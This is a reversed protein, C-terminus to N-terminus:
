ATVKAVKRRRRRAYLALGLIGTVLLVLTSPEPVATPAAFNKIVVDNGDGGSYFVQFPFLKNDFLVNFEDNPLNAFTGFVSDSGDNAIVVYERNLFPDSHLVVDLNSGDLRVGGTVNLQSYFPGDLEIQFRSGPEFLVSGTSLTGPLSDIGPHVIGHVTVEGAISGTGELRGAPQVFVNGTGTASGALNAVELTGSQVMTPGDYDNDTFLVVKGLGDIILDGVGTIKQGMKNIVAGAAPTVTLKHGNKDIKGSLTLTTGAAAGIQSHDFLTIDGAFENKGAVNYIAGVHVRNVDKVGQGSIDLDEETRYNVHQFALTAGNSVWTGYEKTGLAGDVNVTLTGRIINTFGKHTNAAFLTVEGDGVKDLFFPRQSTIVGTLSLTTGREAGIRSDGVLTIPGTFVNHGRGNQIAGQSDVGFGLIEVPEEAKYIIGGEFKL